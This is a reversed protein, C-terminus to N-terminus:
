GSRNSDSLKIATEALNSLSSVAQSDDQNLPIGYSTPIFTSPAKRKKSENKSEKRKKRASEPNKKAEEERKARQLAVREEHKEKKLKEREITKSLLPPLDCPPFRAGRAVIVCVLQHPRRVELVQHTGLGITWQWVPRKRETTLIKAQGNRRLTFGKVRLLEKYESTSIWNYVEDSTKFFDACIEVAIVDTM